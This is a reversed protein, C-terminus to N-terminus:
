TRGSLWGLKKPSKCEKHRGPEDCELELRYRRVSGTDDDFTLRRHERPVFCDPVIHKMIWGKVGQTAADIAAYELQRTHDSTWYHTTQPPPPHIPDQQQEVPESGAEIPPFYFYADPHRQQHQSMPSKLPQGSLRGSYPYPTSMAARHLGPRRVQQRSSSDTLTLSSRCNSSYSARPKYEKYNSEYGSDQRTIPRPQFDDKNTRLRLETVTATAPPAPKYLEIDYFSHYTTDSGAVSVASQSRHLDTPLPSIRSM